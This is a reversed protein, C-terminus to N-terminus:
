NAVKVMSHRLVSDKYMYGKLLEEAVVNEGLSEDEIHMVANHLNPDFEKGVCDIPKVGLDELTKTMQNYIMAIGDAFAKGEGESPTALMAREFNDVVPLLKEAVSRAGMDFMTAKEKESRKRFNDFEAMSRKLRDTLDAIALDKKDPKGELNEDSFAEEVEAEMAAAKAAAEEPTEEAEEVFEGTEEGELVEKNEEQERKLDKEKM